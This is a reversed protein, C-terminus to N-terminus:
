KLTLEEKLANYFSIHFDFCYLMVYAQPEDSLM